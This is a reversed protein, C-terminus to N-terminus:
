FGAKERHQKLAELSPPSKQPVFLAKGHLESYHGERINPALIVSMTDPEIALLGLDFLTHIDARLLLGNTPKNTKKGKYRVIHAAELAGDVDCGTVACKAEYLHLLKKRFKSQGRRSVISLLTRQREDEINNPDFNEEAKTLEQEAEQEFNFKNDSWQAFKQRDARTWSAPTKGKSLTYIFSQADLRDQINMGHRSAEVIFKDLFALAEVYVAAGHLSSDPMLGALKYAKTLHSQRYVPYSVGDGEAMLLFSAISLQSGLGQLTGQPVSALFGDIREEPTGVPAWVKSLAARAQEPHDVIWQLFLDHVRWSTLNNIRTFATTLLDNWEDHGSLFANQAAKVRAIIDLKYSREGTAFEEKKHWYKAWKIFVSWPSNDNKVEDEENPMKGYFKSLDVKTDANSISLQQNTITGIWRRKGKKDNSMTDTTLIHKVENYPISFFDGEVDKDGVVILYIAEGHKTIKEDLKSKAFDLWYDREPDAKRTYHISSKSAHLEYAKNKM